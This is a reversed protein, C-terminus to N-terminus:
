WGEKLYRCNENCDKEWRQKTLEWDPMPLSDRGRFFPHSVMEEIFIGGPDLEEFRELISSYRSDKGYNVGGNKEIRYLEDLLKKIETYLSGGYRFLPCSKSIGKVWCPIKRKYTKYSKKVPSTAVNENDKVAEM